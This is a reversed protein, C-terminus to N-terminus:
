ETREALCQEFFNKYAKALSRIDYKQVRSLGNHARILAAHPDQLITTIARAMDMPNEPSVLSATGGVVERSEGVDTAIVPIAAAMAELLALSLGESRSPQIFLDYEHLKGGFKQQNGLFRVRSGLGLKQSLAVCAAKGSGTGVFDCCFNINQQKLLGLAKILIDQGKIHEIRGLCVLKPTDSFARGGRIPISEVDISNPLVVMAQESFGHERLHCRVSECVCIHRHAYRALFHELFRRKIGAKYFTAGAHAHVLSSKARCLLAAVRLWYGASSLRTHIVDPKLTCLLRCLGILRQLRSQRAFVSVAVGPINLSDILEGGKLVVVHQRIEEPPYLSLQYVLDCLLREEGGTNLHEIAHLIQM